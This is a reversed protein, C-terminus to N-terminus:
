RKKWESDQRVLLEGAREPEAMIEEVIREMRMSQSGKVLIADGEMLMNQIEQAAKSSDEFQLINADPMGNDLAGMAIDRARVGVTILIDCTKAAIAGAKRHEEVSVRGLEMM